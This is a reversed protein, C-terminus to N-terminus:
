STSTTKPNTRPFTGCTSSHSKSATSTSNMLWERYGWYKKYFTAWENKIADACRFIFPVWNKREVCSYHHKNQHETTYLDKAYHRMLKFRIAYGTVFTTEGDANKWMKAILNLFSETIKYFDDFQWYFEDLTDWVKENTPNPNQLYLEIERKLYDRENRSLRRIGAVIRFEVIIKEDFIDDTDLHVPEAM